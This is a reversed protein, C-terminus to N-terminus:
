TGKETIFAISATAGHYRALQLFHYFIMISSIANLTFFSPQCSIIIFYPKLVNSKNNAFDISSRDMVHKSPLGVEGPKPKPKPKLTPLYNSRSGMISM